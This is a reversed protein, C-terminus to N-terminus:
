LVMGLITAVGWALAWLGIGAPIAYPLADFMMFPTDDNEDRDPTM